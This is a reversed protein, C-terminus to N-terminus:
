QPECEEIGARRAQTRARTTLVGLETGVERVIAMNNEDAADALLDLQRHRQELTQLYAAFADELEPPPTLDRLEDLEDRVADKSQRAYLQTETFSEPTGLLRVRENAKGCIALADSVFSERSNGGGCGALLALLALLALAFAGRKTRATVM